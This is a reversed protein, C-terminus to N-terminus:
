LQEMENILKIEEESLVVFDVLLREAHQEHHMCLALAHEAEEVSDFWKNMDEPLDNFWRYDCGRSGDEGLWDRVLGSTNQNRGIYKM